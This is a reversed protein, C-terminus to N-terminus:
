AVGGSGRHIAPYQVVIVEVIDHDHDEVGRGNLRL